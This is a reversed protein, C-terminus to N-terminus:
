KKLCRFRIAGWSKPGIIGDASVGLLRQLDIVQGRTVGTIRAPLGDDADAPAPLDVPRVKRIKSIRNYLRDGPCSTASVDRHGCVVRIPNSKLENENLHRLLDQCATIQRDLREKPAPDLHFRGVFCVSLTDRNSYAAGRRAKNAGNGYRLGRGEFVAGNSAIVYNYAIMGFKKRNRIVEEVHRVEAVPNGTATTVSHHVVLARVPRAKNARGWVGHVTWESFPIIM